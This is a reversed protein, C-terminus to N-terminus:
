PLRPGAFEEMFTEWEHESRINESAARMTAAYATGNLQAQTMLEALYRRQVRDGALQPLEALVADHGGRRLLMAVRQDANMGTNRLMMEIMETMWARGAADFTRGRGDVKYNVGLKGDRRTALRLERRVAGRQEIRVEGDRAVRTIASMDDSFELDGDIRMEIRCGRRSWKLERTDRHVRNSVAQWPGEADCGGGRGVRASVEDRVVTVIHDIRVMDTIHAHLANPIMVSVLLAIYHM